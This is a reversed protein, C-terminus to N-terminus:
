HYAHTVGPMHSIEALKGVAKLKEAFIENDKRLFDFESTWVVTPPYM